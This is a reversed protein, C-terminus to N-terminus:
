AAVVIEEVAPTRSQRPRRNKAQEMPTAWRVNGPEYGLSGDIRDLTKGAPREGVDALFRTFDKWAECVMIGAGGYRAFNAAHPNLCRELLSRWTVHTPSERGGVKHGHTVQKGIERCHERRFCGCSKKHGSRLDDRRAVCIQGCSCLCAWLQLRSGWPRHGEPKGIVTLRGFIMGTLDAPWGGGVDAVAEPADEFRLDAPWSASLSPLAKTVARFIRATRRKREALSLGALKRSIQHQEISNRSVRKGSSLTLWGHGDWRADEAKLKEVVLDRIQTSTLKKTAM